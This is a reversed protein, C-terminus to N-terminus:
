DCFERIHDKATEIKSQRESNSILRIKGDKGKIHRHVQYLQLNNKAAKCNQARIEANKTVEAEIAKSSEADVATNSSPAPTTTSPRPSKDIKMKEYQSGPPPRQGYHVNGQEDTWKYTGAQLGTSLFLGLGTVICFKILHKM